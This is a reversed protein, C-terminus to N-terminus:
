FFVSIGFNAGLNHAVKNKGLLDTDFMHDDMGIHAAVGDTLLIRYGFGLNLTFHEASAFRSSGVGSVFYLATNYAHNRGLYIEGPLANWGLSLAYYRFDRENDTLLQAAGSLTEYSTKGAHANAYTGELFFDESLLYALRVGYQPSSGFDELSFIGYYAGFEFDETDIRPVKVERREVEPEIIPREQPSANLDAAVIKEPDDADTASPLSTCGQVGCAALTTLLLVRLRVEM